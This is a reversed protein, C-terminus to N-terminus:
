RRLLPCGPVNAFVVRDPYGHRLGGIIVRRPTVDSVHARRLGSWRAQEVAQFPACGRHHPRGFEPGRGRGRDDWGHRGRDDWGPRGRDDWGHRGPGDIYIGFGGDASASSTTAFLSTAAILAAIGAKAFRNLM